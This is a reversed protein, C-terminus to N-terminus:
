VMMEVMVVTIFCVEGLEPYCKHAQPQLAKWYIPFVEEKDLKEGATPLIHKRTRDISHRATYSTNDMPIDALTFCAFYRSPGARRAEAEGHFFMGWPAWQNWSISFCTTCVQGLSYGAALGM